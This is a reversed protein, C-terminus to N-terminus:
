LEYSLQLNDKDSAPLVCGSIGKERFESIFFSMSFPVPLICLMTIRKIQSCLLNPVINAVVINM